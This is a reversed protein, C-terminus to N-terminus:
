GPPPPGRMLQSESPQRRDIHFPSAQSPPADAVSFSFAGGCERALGSGCKSGPADPYHSYQDLHPLQSAQSPISQTHRVCRPARMAPLGAGVSFCVQKQDSASRSKVPGALWSPQRLPYAGPRGLSRGLCGLGVNPDSHMLHLTYRTWIHSSAQRRLSRSPIGSAGLHGCRLCALEWLSASRSKIRHQDQNSLDRWGRHSDCLIPLRDGSHGVWAVGGWM